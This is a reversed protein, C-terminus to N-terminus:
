FERYFRPFDQTKSGEYRGFSFDIFRLEYRFAFKDVNRNYVTSNLRIEWDNHFKNYIPTCFLGESKFIEYCLCLASQKNM